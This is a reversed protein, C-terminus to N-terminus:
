QLLVTPSLPVVAQIGADHLYCRRAATFSLPIAIRNVAEMLVFLVVLPALSTQEVLRVTQVPMLARSLALKEMVAFLM